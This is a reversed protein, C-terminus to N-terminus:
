CENVVSNIRSVREGREDGLKYVLPFVSIEIWRDKLTDDEDAGHVDEMTIPNIRLADEDYAPAMRLHFSAQQRQLTRLLELGNHFITALQQEMDVTWNIKMAKAITHQVEQTMHRVLRDQAESLAGTDRLGILRRTSELWSKHEM